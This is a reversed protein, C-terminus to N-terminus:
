PLHCLQRIELGVKQLASAVIGARVSAGVTVTRAAADIQVGNFMSLDVDIGGQLRGLSTSYGHGGGTALLSLNNHLAYSM